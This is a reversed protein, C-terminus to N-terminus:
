SVGMYSLEDPYQIGAEGIYMGFRNLAKDDPMEFKIGSLVVQTSLQIDIYREVVFPDALLQIHISGEGNFVSPVIAKESSIIKYGVTNGIPEYGQGM